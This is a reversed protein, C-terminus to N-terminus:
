PGSLGPPPRYTGPPFVANLEGSRFKKSAEKYTRVTQFYIDLCHHYTKMCKTLVIPRFSNRKSKKTKFPLTGAKTNKLKQSGMFGHKGQRHREQIVLLRRKELAAYLYEKYEQASKKEHGPLRKFKLTYTEYFLDPSIKPNNKKAIYFKTKNLVRFTREREEAADFFSNYGPYQEIKDCLGAKVPQLALYFFCNEIDGNLPLWEEAYRRAWLSGEKFDPVHSKVCRQVDANFNRELAARNKLPCRLMNHIHDGQINLAYVEAQALTTWKAFRGCIEEHLKDNNVFWLASGRTRSTVHSFRDSDEIRLAQSM